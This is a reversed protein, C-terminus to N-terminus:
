PKVCAYYATDMDAMRFQPVREYRACHRAAVANATALDGSYAIKASNADGKLLLASPASCAALLGGIIVLGAAVAVSRNM